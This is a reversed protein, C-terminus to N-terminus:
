IPTRESNHLLARSFNDPLMLAHSFFVIHFTSQQYLFLGGSPPRKWVNPPSAYTSKM